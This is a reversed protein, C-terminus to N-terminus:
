EVSFNLSSLEGSAKPEKFGGIVADIVGDAANSAKRVQDPMLSERAVDRAALVDNRETAFIPMQGYAVAYWKYAEQEDRLAGIGHLYMHGLNAAAHWDYNRVGRLFWLRAEFADAPDPGESLYIEGIMNAADAHGLSDAKLYWRVAVWKEPKACEDSRFVDALLFAAESNGGESAKTLWYKATECDHSPIYNVLLAKGLILQAVAIGQEAIPQLARVAAGYQGKSYLIIADNLAATTQARAVDCTTALALAWTAVVLARM